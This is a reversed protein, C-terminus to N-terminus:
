IKIKQEKTKPREGQELTNRSRRPDIKWRSIGLDGQQRGIGERKPSKPPRDSGFESSKKFLTSGMRGRLGFHETSFSRM